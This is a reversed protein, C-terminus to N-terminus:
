AKVRGVYSGDRTDVEILEGENIFLPVRVTAGTEVTAPKLTNTATDGKLGPETYTIKLVTKTPMEAYLVTETSADSVVEVTDGEKMYDVGTVLDKAIPIQEFTENNM